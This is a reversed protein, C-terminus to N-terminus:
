YPPAGFVMEYFLIGLSWIDTKANYINKKSCEPAMYLPTGILINKNHYDSTNISFGFDAIKPINKKM